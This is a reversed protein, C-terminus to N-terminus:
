STIVRIIIKCFFFFRLFAANEVRWNGVMHRLCAFVSYYPPPSDLLVIIELKM